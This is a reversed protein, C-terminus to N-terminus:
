YLVYALTKDSLEIIHGLKNMLVIAKKFSIINTKCLQNITWLVYKICKFLKCTPFLVFIGKNQTRFNEAM